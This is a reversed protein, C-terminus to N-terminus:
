HQPQNITFAWLRLSDSIMPLHSQYSQGWKSFILNKMAGERLCIPIQEAEFYSEHWALTFVSLM